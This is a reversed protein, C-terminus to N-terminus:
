SSTGLKAVTTGSYYHRLIQEPSHRARARAIMGRQCLGIGHGYGRGQFTLGTSTRQIDFRTSMITRAGFEATLVARLEEGRIVVTQEGDLSVQLVRGAADRSLIRIGDLRSGIATRPDLNLANLLDPEDPTFHWTASKERKCFRDLVGRLYPLTSGGWAAASDSTHGGCDAHFLANIPSANHVIFLGATRITADAVVQVYFPSSDRDPRYVQCHTTACLNFGEHRHRNRNKLAYTRAVIAQTEAVRQAASTDLGALSVEALVVGRVYDSFAIEQIVAGEYGLRIRITLPTADNPLALPFKPRVCYASTLVVLSTLGIVMVPRAVRRVSRTILSIFM